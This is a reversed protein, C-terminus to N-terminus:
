TRAASVGRFAAVGAPACVGVGPGDAVAVGGALDAAFGDLWAARLDSGSTTVSFKMLASM